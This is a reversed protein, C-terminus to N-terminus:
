RTVAVIRDGERLAPDPRAVLREGPDLGATVEVRDAVQRGLRLWRFHSAGADDVVYVGQLGGREALAVGPVSLAAQAPLAFVARGFAGPAVAPSAPLAIRVRQARTAGDPLPLVHQVSAALPAPRGDLQVQVAQGPQIGAAQAEPVDIDFWRGQLTDLTLIAQGPTALEGARQHRAVVVGDIPSHLTADARRTRAVDLAAHAQNLSERAVDRRLQARRWENDSLSGRAFLQEQRQTENEAQRWSAQATDFVAEAQRLGGDLEAADIRVLVQGRHVRDGEQVAVERLLGTLKAALPVRADSGVSGAFAIALPSAPPVEFVATQWTKPAPLPVPAAPDGCGALALTIFCGLPCFPRPMPMADPRARPGPPHQLM